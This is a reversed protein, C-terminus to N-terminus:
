KVSVVCGSNWIETNQDEPWNAEQVQWAPEMECPELQGNNDQYVNIFGYGHVLVTLTTTTNISIQYWDNTIDTFETTTSLPYGPPIPYNPALGYVFTHTLDSAGQFITAAQDPSYNPAYDSQFFYQISSVSPDLRVGPPIQLPAAVVSRASIIFTIALAIVVQTLMTKVRRQNRMTRRRLM